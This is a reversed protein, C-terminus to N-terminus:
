SKWNAEKGIPLESCLECKDHYQCTDYECDYSKVIKDNWSVLIGITHGIKKCCTIYGSNREM